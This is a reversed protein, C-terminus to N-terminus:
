FLAEIRLAFNEFFGLIVRDVDLLRLGKILALLQGILHVFELAGKFFLCVLFEAFAGLNVQKLSEFLFKRIVTDLADRLSGRAGIDDVNHQVVAPLASSDDVVRLVVVGEAVVVNCLKQVILQGCLSSCAIREM